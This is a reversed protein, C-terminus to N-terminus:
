AAHITVKYGLREIRRVARDVVRNRNREDFYAGGADIYTTENKLLFYASTLISHAVAVIARKGGVRVALRRYQAQFYSDKKRSAAWAAQLLASRLWVNGNGTHGSKQKGASRNNGPCVKAWSALHKATPFRSMDSGIEALIEEAGRRGIGPISDLKDVQDEFPATRAAVEQDLSAAEAELFEIQRLLSQLMYRQHPGMLGRIARVLETQKGRLSGQALEAIDEPEVVGGAMATLMARGSAGNIDSLVSALKVTGGELLKQVRNVVAAKQQVLGRRHRVLERLERQPRDPIFSGHVLGHRLLDAIWEADKVDTKRGPVAKVHQANVVLVTLQLGELLNYIPKWYVGTSEMAVQSVGSDMLWDTLRLLDDTMTGFTRTEKGEPTLVCAVVTKKHVDLGACRDYVVRM